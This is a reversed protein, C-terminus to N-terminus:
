EMAQLVIKRSLLVLEDEDFLWYGHESSFEPNYPPLKHDMKVVCKGDKNYKRFTGAMGTRKTKVRDGKVFCAHEYGTCCSTPDPHFLGSSDCDHCFPADAPVWVCAGPKDAYRFLYPDAEDKPIATIRGHLCVKDGLKPTYNEAM